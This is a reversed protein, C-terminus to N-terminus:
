IFKQVHHKGVVFYLQLLISHFIFKSSLNRSCLKIIVFVSISPLTLIFSIQCMKSVLEINSSFFFCLHNFAKLHSLAVIHCIYPVWLFTLIHPSLKTKKKKKKFFIHTSTFIGSHKTWSLFRDLLLVISLLWRWVPYLQIWSLFQSRAPVLSFLWMATSSDKVPPVPGEGWSREREVEERWGLWVEQREGTRIQFLTMSFNTNLLLM